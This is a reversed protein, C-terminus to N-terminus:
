RSLPPSVTDEAQTKTLKELNDITVALVDVEPEPDDDVDTSKVYIGNEIEERERKIM